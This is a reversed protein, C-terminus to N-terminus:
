ESLLKYQKNTIAGLQYLKDICQYDKYLYKKLNNRGLDSIINMTTNKQTSNNNHDHITITINLLRKMDEILTETAIVILPNDERNISNEYDILFDGIYWNIDQKLQHIYHGSDNYPDGTFNIAILSSTQNYLNEALNNVNGIKKLLDREGNFRNWQKEKHLIWIKYYRWNFASIFRKIPNRISIIYTKNPNYHIKSAFVHKVGYHINHKRLEYGITGGGTKGIHIFIFKNKLKNRIHKYTLFNENYNNSSQNYKIRYTDLIYNNKNTLKFYFYGVLLWPVLICLLIVIICSQKNICNHM